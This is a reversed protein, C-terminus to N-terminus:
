KEDFSLSSLDSDATINRVFMFINDDIECKVATIINMGTEYIYAPRGYLYLFLENELLFCLM